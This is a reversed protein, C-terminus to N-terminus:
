ATEQDATPSGNPERHPRKRSRRTRRSTVLGIMIAAVACTIMVGFWGYRVMLGCLVAWLLGMLVGSTTRGLRRAGRTAAEEAALRQAIRDFEDVGEPATATASAMPVNVRIDNRIDVVGSVQRAAEGATRKVHHSGVTGTLMVVRNQVEVTINQHRLDAYGVLRDAVTCALLADPDHISPPRRRGAFGDDPMPWMTM